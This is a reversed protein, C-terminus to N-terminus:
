YISCQRSTLLSGKCSPTHRSRGLNVLRTAVELDGGQAQLYASASDVLVNAWRDRSRTHFDGQVLRGADFLVDLCSRTDEMPIKWLGLVVGLVALQFQPFTIRKPDVSVEQRSQVPQGYYHKHVLSLCWYVRPSSDKPSPSMGLNLVGGARILKDKMSIEIIKTGFVIMDPYLHWASLAVIAAGDHVAQPMGSILNEM